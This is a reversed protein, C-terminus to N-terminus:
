NGQGSYRKKYLKSTKSNSSKTKAHVGRRRVREKKYEEAMKFFKINL